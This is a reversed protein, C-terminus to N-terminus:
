DIWIRDKGILNIRRAETYITDIILKQTLTMVVIQQILLDM